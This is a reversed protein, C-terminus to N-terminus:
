VTKALDVLFNVCAYNDVGLLNVSYIDDFRLLFTMFM